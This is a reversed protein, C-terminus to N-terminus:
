IEVFPLLYAPIFQIDKQVEFYDKTIIVKKDTNYRQSFNWMIVPASPKNRYKVEILTHLDYQKSVVFDIESKSITRYFYIQEKEFKKRLENYVFNEVEQGINIKKNIADFEKLSYNRLWLDECFVKPMKSIEKRVNRFFPPLKSFVFTGQLMDIYKNVTQVSINLTSSIENINVLEWVNSSLLKILNNFATINEINLFEIIDKQIYAEFIQWLIAKKTEIDNYTLVEPYGWFTIYEFFINNLKNKFLNNFQILEYDNPDFVNINKINEKYTFYEFFGVRDIYFNIARGTLFETNKSVELSSSGSVLIQLKDKYEDYINKLFLWANNIYQFEDLFLYVYNEPFNHYYKLYTILNWPTSFIDINDIKDAQLFAIEANPNKTKINESIDKMLTTKWVQRAWQLILIKNKHLWKQIQATYGRDIM